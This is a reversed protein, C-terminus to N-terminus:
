SRREEPNKRPPQSKELAERLDFPWDELACEFCLEIQADSLGPQGDTGAAASAGARLLDEVRGRLERRIRELNRSVTGEHEGLHRGIQALTWGEAYYFSLRTRDRTDLTALAGDLAGRLLTLYRQRHPDSPPDTHSPVLLMARDGGEGDTLPELRRAARVADVHRQALVARLWTELKSRGHFYSFLPRCKTGSGAGYLGAYLSDALERARPDDAGRGTIAGAAAYLCSRYTRFFHEWAAESGDACACALALDEVRLSRLYAEVDNAGPTRGCFHHRVSCDLSEAFRKKSLGWQGAQSDGYLQTVLAEAGEAWRWPVNGSRETPKLEGPQM